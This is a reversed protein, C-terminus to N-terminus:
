LSERGESSSEHWDRLTDDHPADLDCQAVLESLTYRPRARPEVILRGNEISLDVKTNPSLNLSTLVAKPIALMVSGGVARLSSLHM